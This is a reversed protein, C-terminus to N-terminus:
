TNLSVHMECTNKQIFLMKCIQIQLVSLGKKVYSNKFTEKSRDNPATLISCIMSM